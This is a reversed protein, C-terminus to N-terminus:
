WRHFPHRCFSSRLGLFSSGFDLCLVLSITLSCLNLLAKDPLLIRWISSTTTKYFLGPLVVFSTLRLGERLVSPNSALQLFCSILVFAKDSTLLCSILSTTSSECIIEPFDRGYPRFGILFNWACWPFQFGGHWYATCIKRLLYNNMLFKFWSISHM